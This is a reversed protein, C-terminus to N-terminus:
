GVAFIAAGNATISLLHGADGVVALVVPMLTTLEHGRLHQMSSDVFHIQAFRRGLDCVSTLFSLYPVGRRGSLKRPVACRAM